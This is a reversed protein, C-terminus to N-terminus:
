LCPDASNPLESRGLFYKVVLLFGWFISESFGFGLFIGEFVSNMGCFDLMIHYYHLGMIM